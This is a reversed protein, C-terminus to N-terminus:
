ASGVTAITCGVSSKRISKKVKQLTDTRSRRRRRQCPMKSATCSSKKAAVAAATSSMGRPPLRTMMSAAISQKMQGVAVAEATTVVFNRPSAAPM